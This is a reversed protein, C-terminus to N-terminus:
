LRPKSGAEFRWEVGLFPCCFCFVMRVSWSVCDTNLSKTVGEEAKLDNSKQEQFEKYDEIKSSLDALDTEVDTKKKMQTALTEQLAANDSEYSAQDKVDDARGAKMEKKLDDKLMELIAVIGGTMGKQGAYNGTEFIEPPTDPNVSYEPAAGKQLLAPMKNDTYFKSLAMIAQGLLAVAEADDKLAQQFDAQEKNRMDLLDAISKKTAKIEDEIAKLNNKMDTEDNEMRAIAEKTKTIASDLDDKGNQNANQKNECRDRHYIDELEEKRLLSIMSDIMAIVKDFHGNTKVAVAIKAL